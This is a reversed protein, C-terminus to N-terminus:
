GPNSAPDSAAWGLQAAYQAALEAYHGPAYTLFAREQDNTPRKVKAPSGMALMGPPIVTGETVLAGAAVVAGAGVVVRDMVISGMGILAGDEVTCGHLVARHGVVVDAGIITAHRGTTVHVVSNDQINSRAGIRIHFVDGRIVAGFWISVEDGLHVDGIVHAGPAVFVRQGIRPHVGAYPLIM